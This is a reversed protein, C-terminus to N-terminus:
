REPVSIVAEHGLARLMGIAALGLGGAGVLVVPDGPELTMVKRIASLVTIGSCGLTAAVVPDVDGPDVLYHLHPVLVHSGFGGDQM